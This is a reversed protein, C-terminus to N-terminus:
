VCRHLRAQEEHLLVLSAVLPQTGHEVPEIGKFTLAIRRAELYGTSSVLIMPCAARM